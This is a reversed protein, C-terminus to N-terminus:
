GDGSSVQRPGTGAAKEWSRGTWLSAKTIVEMKLCWSGMVQYLFDHRPTLDQDPTIVLAQM